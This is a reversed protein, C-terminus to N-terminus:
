VIAREPRLVGRAFRDASLPSVDVFPTRGLYLDRLIEGVAPGQLFGHGSFGTAYLFRGGCAPAAAEGLLANHDPTIEYLGAWRAAIGVDLLLPVRREIAATLDPLWGDDVDTAFGPREGDWSMGLLVGPGERHLYFTSAADITMPMSAPLAAEAGAPLPGTVLIQRRLPTVPLDVGALAGLGRSWAGAACVVADARVTGATTRVVAGEHGTRDGDPEFGVVEVGTLVWAGHRRAGAAYGLVVSEPACWGDGRHFTAALVDDTAVGPALAAAEARSLLRTPVGLENQLATAAEFSAVDESRTLLFLYGHRRLDIEQGPRRGFDAFAELGRAGLVINLADSFQARVGGAAKSTSGGGLADRELLLVDVGAEALHFATSTGMVGGGVVVVDARAPPAPGM